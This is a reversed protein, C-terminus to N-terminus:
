ISKPYSGSTPSPGVLVMFAINEPTRPNKRVCDRTLHMHAKRVNRVQAHARVEQLAKACTLKKVLQITQARQFHMKPSIISSIPTQLHQIGTVM